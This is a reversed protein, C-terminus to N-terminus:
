AVIDDDRLEAIEARSLELVEALVSDTHEGHLPGPRDVRGPTASLRLPIGDLTVTSGEPTPVTAWYGRARLQPDRECLDQGNAVTFAAIGREQLLATVREPSLRRTWAEVAHDLAGAHDIRGSPEAFRADRTWPEGVTAAFRRWDEEDFIAIAVWRDDGACRYIGHPAASAEQSRNVPPVVPSAGANALELLMPGMFSTVSELQSLDVAQGEGTRARHLLAAVVALAGTLGACVDAHSFGWGAPDDGPTRLLLTHGCLAQLTPGFSVFDKQPGTQGFGSMGVTIIDRRLEKLSPYDLGFSPMVRASFNDIVVDSAAALRKALAIGRRDALNLIISRKGRNLNGFFGGRREDVDLTTTREVKIVEAGHDALIRTAMPGAVVHTFDLIRIGDLARHRPPEGEGPRAAPKEGIPLPLLSGREGNPLPDPHPPSAASSRCALEPADGSTRLPTKSMRFPPGPFRLTTGPIPAFFGRAVLQPDDRLREPPRV